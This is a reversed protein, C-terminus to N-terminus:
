AAGFEFQKEVHGTESEVLAPIEHWGTPLQDPAVLTCVATKNRPIQSHVRAAHRAVRISVPIEALDLRALDLLFEEAFATPRREVAVAIAALTMDYPFLKGIQLERLLQSVFRRIAEEDIEGQFLAIGLQAVEDSLELARHVARSNSIIGFKVLFNECKLQEFVRHSM